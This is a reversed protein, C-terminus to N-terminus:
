ARPRRQTPRIAPGEAQLKVARALELVSGGDFLTRADIEYGHRSKALNTFRMALLSDIGLDFMSDGPGVDPVVLLEALLECLHREIEVRPPMSLHLKGADKALRVIAERDVKGSPSLPLREVHVFSPPVMYEPLRRALEERLERSSSSSVVCAVLRGACLAVAADEVNPLGRLASTVEGLEVRFGRIKVQDDRRGVFELLGGARWRVLDGTRYVRGSGTFPDVIFKEATLEPEHLYGRALCAGGVLLEGTRSVDEPPVRAGGDDVVYVYANPVPRGIPMDRVPAAADADAVESLLAWTAVITTETPGYGNLLAVHEPTHAMWRALSARDAVEGGISVARVSSPFALGGEFGRALERWFATPLDLVTIGWRECARVFAGVDTSMEETRLVLTAGGLLTGFIEEVSLDFSLTGFQLVRDSACFALKEAFATVYNVVSGHEVVVGKPRGTSGSTYMVYAADSPESGVSRLGNTTGFCPVPRPGLREASNRAARPAAVLTSAGPLTVGDDVLAVRAGCDDRMARIREIPYSPDMPVYAGGAKLIGLMAAIAHLSRRMCVAVLEGRSVSAAALARAIANAQADLIEYTWAREGHILAVAHPHRAM